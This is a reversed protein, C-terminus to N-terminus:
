SALLHKWMSAELHTPKSTLRTLGQIFSGSLSHGSKQAM